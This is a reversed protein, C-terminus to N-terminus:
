QHLNAKDLPIQQNAILIWESAIRLIALDQQKHNLDEGEFSANHESNEIDVFGLSHCRSIDHINHLTHDP